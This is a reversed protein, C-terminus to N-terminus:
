GYYANRFIKTGKNKLEETEKASKLDKIYGPDSEVLVNAKIKMVTMGNISDQQELISYNNVKVSTLLQNDGVVVCNQAKWEDFINKFIQGEIASKLDDPNKTKSKKVMVVGSIDQSNESNKGLILGIEEFSLPLQFNKKM